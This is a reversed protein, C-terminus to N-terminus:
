KCVCKGSNKGMIKDLIFCRSGALSLGISALLLVLQFEYGGNMSNFGKSWHVLYIAVLMIIAFIPAIYEVFFGFLMAIGGFFELYAVIYTLWAPIGLMSFFGLTGEMGSVKAWGHYIFVLAVAVRVLGIAIDRKDVGWVV